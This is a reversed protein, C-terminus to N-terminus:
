RVALMARCKALARSLLAAVTGCRVGMVDAIEAYSLGEARLRVCERERPSLARTLQRALRRQQYGAEPSSSPTATREPIETEAQRRSRRRRELCANRAVRYLWARRDRIEVGSRLAAFLRLFTEQIVDEAAQRDGLLVSAYRYLGDAEARYSLVLEAEHDRASPTPALEDPRAPPAADALVDAPARAEGLQSLNGHM